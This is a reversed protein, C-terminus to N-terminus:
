EGLEKKVLGSLNKAMGKIHSKDEGEIMIRLVPETGSYRILTRGRNGLSAEIDKIAELFGPIDETSM